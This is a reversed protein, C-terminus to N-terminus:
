GIAGNLCGADTGIYTCIPKVEVTSRSSGYGNLNAMRLRKLDNELTCQCPETGM